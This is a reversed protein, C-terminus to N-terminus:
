SESALHARKAGHLLFALSEKVPFCSVLIGQEEFFRECKAAYIDSTAEDRFIVSDRVNASLTGNLDALYYRRDAIRVETVVVDM